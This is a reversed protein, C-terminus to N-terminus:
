AWVRYTGLSQAEWGGAELIAPELIAGPQQAQVLSAALRGM